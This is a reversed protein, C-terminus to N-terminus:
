GLEFIELYHLNKYPPSFKVIESAIKKSIIYSQPDENPRFLDPAKKLKKPDLVMKNVNVVDGDDWEIDSERLDLVDHTGVPNIVYYEASALRKKHNYIALPLFETEGRNVRAIVDKVRKHVIMLGETNSVFDALQMGGFKPSMYVRADPPYLHAAPEGRSPNAAQVNDLNTGTPLDDIVCYQPEIVTCLDLLGYVRTMAHRGEESERRALGRGQHADSDM